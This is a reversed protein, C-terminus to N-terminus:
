EKEGTINAYTVVNLTATSTSTAAVSVAEGEVTTTQSGVYQLETGNTIYGLM